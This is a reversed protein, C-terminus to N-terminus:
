DWLCQNFTIGVTSGKLQNTKLFLGKPTTMQQKNIIIVTDTVSSSGIYYKFKWPTRM